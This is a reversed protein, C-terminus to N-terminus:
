PPHRRRVPPGVAAATRMEYRHNFEILVIAFSFLRILRVSSPEWEDTCDAAALSRETCQHTPQRRLHKEGEQANVCFASRRQSSLM